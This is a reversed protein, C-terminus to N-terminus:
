KQKKFFYEIIKETQKEWTHTSIIFKRANEGINLLENKDICVVDEIAKILSAEDNQNLVYCYQGYVEKIHSINTSIVYKGTALYEIIKSPFLYKGECDNILRLNLLVDIKNYVRILEDFTLFGIYKIRKDEKSSNIIFEEDVGKGAFWVEFNNGKIKKIAQIIYKTGNAEWLSGALLFICKKNNSHKVNSLKIETQQNIGGDILICDKEKAYDFQIDLNIVIRGDIKPIYIKAFFEVCKYILRRKLDLNLSKPPIGLDYLIAITKSNTIKGIIYVIFIPPTYVNYVLIFKQQNRNKLSWKISYYISYILFCISKILMLNIFPSLILKFQQNYNINKLRFYLKNSNPYSSIPALSVFELNVEKKCLEQSIGEQVSNGSRNFASNIYDSTEPVLTGFFLVSINNSM